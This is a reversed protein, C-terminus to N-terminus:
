DATSGRFLDHEPDRILAAAGGPSPTTSVGSFLVAPTGGGKPMLLGSAAALEDAIAQETAVLVRGERDCTGRHDEVAEFGAVGIAVNVLGRRFARGHTDCVVVGVRGGAVDALPAQLRRASADPDRPLLVVRGTATNSSDIGANACVFGHHTEVILTARRRRIIRRSEALILECLAADKGTERSLRLAAPGPAVTSLVVTRGEAKSVVKHAVVLVDGAM